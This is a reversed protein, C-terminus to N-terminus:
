TMWSSVYPYWFLRHKMDSNCDLTRRKINFRSHHLQHQRVVICRNVWSMSTTILQPGLQHRSEDNQRCQSRKTFSWSCQRQSSKALVGCFHEVLRSHFLGLEKRRVEGRGRESRWSMEHCSSPRSGDEEAAQRVRGSELGEEISIQMSIRTPPFSIALAQGFGQAGHVRKPVPPM